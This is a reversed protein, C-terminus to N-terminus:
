DNTEKKENFIRMANMLLFALDFAQEENLELLLSNPVTNFAEAKNKEYSTPEKLFEVYGNNNDDVGYRVTVEPMISDENPKIILKHM